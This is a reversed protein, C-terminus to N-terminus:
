PSALVLSATTGAMDPRLLGEASPLRAGLTVSRGARTLEVSEASIRIVRWGEVDDGLAARRSRGDSLRLLAVASDPRLIVGSAAVPPPAEAEPAAAPAPARERAPPRRGAVFLPRERQESWPGAPPEPPPQVPVPSLAGPHAVASPWPVVVVPDRTALFVLSACAGGLLLLRASM